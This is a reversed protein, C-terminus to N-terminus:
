SLMERRSSICGSTADLLFSFSRTRLLHLPAWGASRGVRVPEQSTEQGSLGLCTPCRQSGTEKGAFHARARWVDSHLNWSLSFNSPWYMVCLLRVFSLMKMTVGDTISFVLFLGFGRLKSTSACQFVKSHCLICYCKLIYLAYRYYQFPHVKFM